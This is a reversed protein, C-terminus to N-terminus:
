IGLKPDLIDRLSDGILNFALVTVLITLGPFFSIWYASTIVDLGEKLMGGWSPAPPQIGLGLFSLGAEAQIATSIWLTAVVGIESIMNPVIHVIIISLEGRGVARAAEVFGQQRLAMTPGRSLRIFRPVLTFSITIVLNTFGGGLVAVIMIALLITPFSMTINVAESILNDLWGGKYGSVVGISVGILLASTVSLFGVGLSYKGGALIRSFIDRGYNDTGLLYKKGPPKFKDLIHMEESEYPSLYPSALASFIILGTLVMGLQFTRNRMLNLGLHHQGTKQKMSKNM